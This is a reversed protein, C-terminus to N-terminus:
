LERLGDVQLRGAILPTNLGVKASGTQGPLRETFFVGTAAIALRSAAQQEGRLPEATEVRRAAQHNTIAAPAHKDWGSM